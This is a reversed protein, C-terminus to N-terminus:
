PSNHRRGLRYDPVAPDRLPSPIWREMILSSPAIKSGVFILIETVSAASPRSSPPTIHWDIEQYLFWTGNLTIMERRSRVKRVVQRALSILQFHCRDQECSEFPLQRAHYTDFGSVLVCAFAGSKWLAHGELSKYSLSRM